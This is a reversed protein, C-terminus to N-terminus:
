HSSQSKTAILDKEPPNTYSSLRHLRQVGGIGSIVTRVPEPVLKSWEENVIM